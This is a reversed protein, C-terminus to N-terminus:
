GDETESKLTAPVTTNTSSIPPKQQKSISKKMQKSDAKNKMFAKMAWTRCLHGGERQSSDPVGQVWVLFSLGMYSLARSIDQLLSPTQEPWWHVIVGIGEAVLSWWESGWDHYGNFFIDNLIVTNFTGTLNYKNTFIPGLKWFYDEGYDFNATDTSAWHMGFDTWGDEDVQSTRDSPSRIYTPTQMFLGIATLSYNLHNLGWVHQKIVLSILGMHGQGYISSSPSLDSKFPIWKNKFPITILTKFTILCTYSDQINYIYFFMLRFNFPIGNM